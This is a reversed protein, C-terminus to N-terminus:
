KYKGYANKWTDAIKIFEKYGYKKIFDVAQKYKKYKYADHSYWEGIIECTNIETCDACTVYGKDRFCCLKMKCKAQNINREGTDYGLKCGKCNGLVYPSCTKCYAGCCGVYIKSDM